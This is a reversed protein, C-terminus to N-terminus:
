SEKYNIVYEVNELFFTVKDFYSQLNGAMEQDM